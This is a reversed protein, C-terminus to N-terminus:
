YSHSFVFKGGREKQREWGKEPFILKNPSDNNGPKRKEEKIMQTFISQLSPSSKLSTEKKYPFKIAPGMDTFLPFFVASYKANEKRHVNTVPKPGRNSDEKINM